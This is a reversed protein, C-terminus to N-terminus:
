KESSWYISCQNCDCLCACEFNNRLTVQCVERKEAFFIDPLYGGSEFLTAQVPEWYNAGFRTICICSPEELEDLFLVVTDGRGQGLHEKNRDLIWMTLSDGCTIHLARLKFYDKEPEVFGNCSVLVSLIICVLLNKM